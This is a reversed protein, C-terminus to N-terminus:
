RLFGDIQNQIAKRMIEQLEALERAYTPDLPEGKYTTWDIKSGKSPNFSKPLGQFNQLNNLIASQQEPTLKQFGPMEKILKKPFIHDAALNDATKILKGTLPDIYQGQVSDRAAADPTTVKRPTIVFECQEGSNHVLVGSMGVRYVHEGFIELNYVPQNTTFLTIGEVFIPGSLGALTENLQLKGLEVWDQRDESWIPHIPTGTIESGDSLTVRM